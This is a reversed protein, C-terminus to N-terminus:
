NMKFQNKENGKLANIEDLTLGTYTSILDLSVNNKLMNKAVVQVGQEIGQEFGQEHGEELADKRIALEKLEDM